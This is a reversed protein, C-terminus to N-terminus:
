SYTQLLPEIKRVLANSREPAVRDMYRYLTRVPDLQKQTKADKFKDSGRKAVYELINVLNRDLQASRDVKASKSSQTPPHSLVEQASTTLLSVMDDTRAFINTLLPNSTSKRSTLHFAHILSYPIYSLLLPDHTSPSPSSPLSLSPVLSAVLCMRDILSLQARVLPMDLEHKTAIAEAKGEAEEGKGKEEEQTEAPASEHLIGFPDTEQVPAGVLDVTKLLEERLDKSSWGVKRALGAQVVLLSELDYEMGYTYRDLFANLAVEPYGIASAKGAFKAGSERGLSGIRDRYTKALELLELLESQTSAHSALTRFQSLPPFRGMDLSEWELSQRFSSLAQAFDARSMAPTSSSPTASSSVPASTSSSVGGFLDDDDEMAFDDDDEHQEEEAAAFANKKQKKKLSTSSCSFTRLSTQSTSAACNGLRSGLCQQRSIM